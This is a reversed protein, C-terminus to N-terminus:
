GACTREMAEVVRDGGRADITRPISAPLAAILRPIAGIDSPAVVPALRARALGDAIRQQNDAVRVAIFPVGLALLEYVSSGCGIVACRSSALLRALDAAPLAGRAEVGEPMAQDGDALVAITPHDAAVLAAAIPGTLRAPDTGGMMVVVSRGGAAREDASFEPRLLAYGPGVLAVGPYEGTAVGLNQNLVLRAPSLDRGPVDDVVLVPALEALRALEGRAFAYHDVVIWGPRREAAIRLVADVPPESAPWLVYDLGRWAWAHASGERDPCALFARHGRRLLAAALSAMRVQHGAGVRQGGDAVLVANM